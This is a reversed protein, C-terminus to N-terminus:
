GTQGYTNILAILEDEVIFNDGDLDADPNWNASRPTSRYAEQSDFAKSLAHLDLADVVGNDDIDGLLKVRVIVRVTNDATDTEGPLRTTVARIEYDGRAYGTTNWTFTHSKGIGPALSTFIFTDILTTNDYLKVELSETKKGQNLVKPRVTVIEGEYVTTKSIYTFGSATGDPGLYVRSTAYRANDATDTEGTLITANASIAYTANKYGATNWSFAETWSKGSLLGAITGNDVLYSVVAGPANKDKKAEEIVPTMSTPTVRVALHDIEIITPTSVAQYTLRTALEGVMTPTWAYAATVDVWVLKDTTETVTDTYTTASWSAGEDNSVAIVIKDNGGSETRRELGVEVKDVGSWGTTNFPYNWWKTSAGDVMAAASTDDSEKVEEPKTWEPTAYVDVDFTETQSGQNEVTVDISVTEGPSVSTPSPEVDTVAVDPGFYVSGGDETNDATDTEGVLITANAFIAYTDEVVSATNWTFTVTQNASPALSTVSKTVDIQTVVGTSTRNAYAEVNFTVSQAGENKVAVDIDVAEGPYASTANPEVATVAVDPGIYVTGDALTNDAARPEGVLVTANAWIPFNGNSASTTDWNFNLTTNANSALNTVTQTGVKTNNAWASVNFTAIQQSGENEVTVNIQVIDGLYVATANVVVDDVAVDPGIYVERDTPTEFANNATVIEGAIASTNAKIIYRAHERGTTDWNFTLTTNGSPALDTVPQSGLPYFLYDEETRLQFSTPTNEVPTMSPTPTVRLALYDVRIISPAGIAQYTLKVAAKEVMTATWGYASTVDIWVLTDTTETVTDTFTTASWSAGADNSVGITLNDTGTDIWRELGVEVKNVGSWGTTNFKFAAWKARSTDAGTYAWEDDSEVVADPLRWGHEAYTNVSFNIPKPGKNTVTVNIKVPDGPYIQTANPEINSVEVDPGVWVEQADLASRGIVNDDTDSETPPGLTDAIAVLTYNGACESTNWMVPVERTEGVDLDAVSQSTLMEGTANEYIAIDFTEKYDGQNVVTVNVEVTDGQHVATPTGELDTLAVDHVPQVVTHNIPYTKKVAKGYSFAVPVPNFGVLKSELDLNSNGDADKSFYITALKGWKGNTKNLYGGASDGTITQTIWIVGLRDDIQISHGTTNAPLATNNLYPGLTVSTPTLVRANYYLKFEFGYLEDVDTANIDITLPQPGQNRPLIHIQPVRYHIRAWVEYIKVTGASDPVGPDTRGFRYRLASVDTWSWVGDRPEAVSANHIVVTKYMPRKPGWLLVPASDAVVYTINMYAGDGTTYYAYFYAHLDVQTIIAGRPPDATPGFATLEFTGNETGYEAYSTTYKWTAFTSNTGDYADAPQDARVGTSFSYNTPNSTYDLSSGAQLPALVDSSVLVTTNPAISGSALLLGVLLLAVKVTKLAKKM